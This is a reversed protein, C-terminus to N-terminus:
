VYPTTPLTLHTYSVPATVLGLVLCGILNVVLVTPSLAGSQSFAVATNPAYNFWAADGTVAPSATIAWRLSAGAVGGIAIAVLDANGFGTRRM